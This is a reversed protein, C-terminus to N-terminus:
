KMIGPFYYFLGSNANEGKLCATIRLYSDETLAPSPATIGEMVAARKKSINARMQTPDAPRLSPGQTSSTAPFEM